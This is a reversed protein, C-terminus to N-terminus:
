YTWSKTYLLKKVMQMCNKSKRGLIFLTFGVNGLYYPLVIKLSYHEFFTNNLQRVTPPKQSQGDLKETDPFNDVTLISCGGVLDSMLFGIVVM